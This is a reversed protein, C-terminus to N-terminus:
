LHDLREVLSRDRRPLVQRLAQALYVRTTKDALVPVDFTLRLWADPAAVKLTVTANDGAVRVSTRPLVQRGDVEVTAIRAVLAPV